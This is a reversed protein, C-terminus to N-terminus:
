NYILYKKRINKFTELDEKWTAKIDEETLGKEIQNQLTATGAHKTFGEEIFFQSKDVCNKYAKILWKLSLLITLLLNRM